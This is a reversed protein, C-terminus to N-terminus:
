SCISLVQEKADKDWVNVVHIGLRKAKILMTKKIEGAHLIAATHEVEGCIEDRMADVEFLQEPTLRTTHKCSWYVLHNKRVGLFDLEQNDSNTCTRKHGILVQVGVGAGDWELEALVAGLWDELWGGNIYGYPNIKTNQHFSIDMNGSVGLNRIIKMDQLINFANLLSGPFSSARGTKSVVLQFRCLDAGLSHLGKVIKGRTSGKIEPALMMLQQISDIHKECESLAKMPRNEDLYNGFTHLMDELTITSCSYADNKALPYMVDFAQSVHDYIVGEVINGSERYTEDLVKLGQLVISRPGGALHYVLKQDSPFKAFESKLAINMAYPDTDDVLCGHQHVALAKCLKKMREFVHGLRQPYIWIIQDPEFTKVAILNPASSESINQILIM